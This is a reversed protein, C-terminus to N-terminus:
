LPPSLCWASSCLDLEDEASGAFLPLQHCDQLFDICPRLSDGSPLLVSDSPEVGIPRETCSVQVVKVSQGNFEGVLKPRWNEDVLEFKESLNVKDAM